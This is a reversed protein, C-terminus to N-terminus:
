TYGTKTNLNASQGVSGLISTVNDIYEKVSGILSPSINKEM